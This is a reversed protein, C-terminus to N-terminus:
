SLYPNLNMQLFLSPVRFWIIVKMQRVDFGRLFIETYTSRCWEDIDEFLKALDEAMREIADFRKVKTNDFAYSTLESGYLTGCINGAISAM